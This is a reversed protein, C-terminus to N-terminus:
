SFIIVVVVSFLLKIKFEAMPKMDHILDLAQFAENRYKTNLNNYLNILDCLHQNNNLQFYGESILDSLLDKSEKNESETMILSRTSTYHDIMKPKKLNEDLEKETQNLKFKLEEESEELNKIRNKAKTLEEKLFEIKELYKIADSNKTDLIEQSTQVQSNKLQAKPEKDIEDLEENQDDELRINQFIRNNLISTRKKTKFKSPLTSNGSPNTYFSIDLFSIILM